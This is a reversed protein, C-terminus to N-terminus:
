SPWCQLTLLKCHATPTSIALSTANSNVPTPLQMDAALRRVSRM